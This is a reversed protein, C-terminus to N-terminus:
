RLFVKESKITGDSMLKSVIYLGKMGPNLNNILVGTMTYYKTSVISANNQPTNAISTPLNSYPEKLVINDLYFGVNSAGLGWVLQTSGMDFSSSTDTYMAGTNWNLSDTSYELKLSVSSAGTASARYWIPQGATPILASVSTNVLQSLTTAATSKYIRFEAHPSTGSSNNYVIFLYGQMLGTVYGTTTTGVPATGRLLMGVKNDQTATALYQKWVVSYDSGDVPFLSLEAVGTTNRVGTTYPKFVNSTLGNADTYSVVGATAGNGNAISVNAAPPTNAVTTAIESNFDYKSDLSLLTINDLNLNYAGTGNAKLMISNNGANLTIDQSVVNWASDAVTSSFAPTAVKTGNVYLDLTNVAGLASYRIQLKYNGAQPVNVTDRVAASSSTGLKVYGQGTYRRITGSYGSTVVSSVSKRDFCEVEYQRPGTYVEPIAPATVTAPTFAILRGIGTGSCNVTIDLAGNHKVVLTFINNIWSKTLVSATHNGRDVYSWTPESSSGVIQITDTKLAASLQDDYNSLYFTVKNSFEKVVAAGFQSMALSMSTCTNYKFPITAQAIQNTKYPNYIVWGNEHRGAYLDGTYEQSFYSNFESQKDTIGPWRSNLVSKNLKLQFSNADVGNLGYVTPITPYRGTKKFFTKNTNYYGDSDMKYLGDFLIKPSSYISDNSGSNVDNIVVVKTRDIVEKRTPIRVTGDLIKRFMDIMVNDFRAVTAWNRRTFGDATTSTNKEVTCNQWIIEPGDIVTQGTLMIHELHPAIGTALTFNANAGTSDIWGTNDYRIGYQGSYGSLYAGLCISEMDSKYSVTTYKECLIYNAAYLQSATRFSTNRKLMAIPNINQSYQNGCWNVTLYGGYKNSMKLLNALLNMRDTWKASIPDVQDFGWFPEAFNFGIFNPYNQFFEEYVTLDTESFQHMGGSAVQLMAWVRNEACTRMWSKAIEYGYEAVKFRSLTDHSISLSVNFIVYPKIDEPILRIIKQPDPYNWTDIHIIWMPSSASIPRRFQTNIQAKASFQLACIATLIFIFVIKKSNSKSHCISKNM